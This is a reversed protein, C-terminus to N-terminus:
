GMVTFATWAAVAAITCLVTLVWWFLRRDSEVTQLM